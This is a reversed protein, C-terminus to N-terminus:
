RHASRRPAGTDARAANRKRGAGHAPGALAAAIERERAFMRRADARSREHDYGVLHLMGHVLLTALRQRPSIGARRAQALATDISIVVDGLLVRARADVNAPKPVSRRAEELQSFSLVDTARDKGRFDRNLARIAADDVIMVSLEARGLEAARMAAAADSRLARAYPRAAATEVRLVVPV